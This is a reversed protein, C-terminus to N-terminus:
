AQAETKELEGYIAQAMMNALDQVSMGKNASITLNQILSGFSHGGGSQGSLNAIQDPSLQPRVPRAFNRLGQAMADPVRSSERNVGEALTRPISQGSATLTSLPGEKADSHPLFNGIASLVDKVAGKVARAGRVIGGVMTSILKTGAGDGISGIKGWFMDGITGVWGDIWAGFAAADNQIGTWTNQILGTIGSWNDYIYKGMFIFPWLPLMILGIIGRVWAPAGSWASKMKEWVSANEGGAQNWWDFVPQAASKLYAYADAIGMIIGVVPFLVGIVVKAWTPMNTWYGRITDWHKILLVVGGILAGVGVIILGIPNATMAANWAWQAATVAWTKVALATQIIGFGSNVAANSATATASMSQLVTYAMWAGRATMVAGTVLAIATGGYLITAVVKMLMPHDAGLKQVWGVLDALGGVMGSVPGDAGKGIDGMLAHWGEQLRRLQGPMSQLNESAMKDMASWDGTKIAGDIDAIDSGLQGIHPLLGQVAKAGESGFAKTLQPLETVVDINDGFKARIDALIAPMSKLRGSADNANLGLNQMGTGVKELFARYATGAEGPNMKNQLTGLVATQEGFSVKLSAAATSLSNMAQNMAAGDTRYKQVAMSLSNGVLNAFDQESYESYMQRFNAHVMGFSKSLEAFDGKTAMATKGVVAAFGSLEAGELSSVASKIDYIGTMYTEKAIGMQSAMRSGAASIKDVDAARVGLSRVNAELESVQMRAEITSGSIGAMVAGTALFGAGIKMSSMAKNMKLVQPHSEGVEHRFQKWRETLQGLAAAGQIKHTILAGVRYTSESM